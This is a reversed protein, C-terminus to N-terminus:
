ILLLYTYIIQEELISSLYNKAKEIIESKFQFEKLIEQKYDHWYAFTHFLGAIDWNKESSLHFVQKDLLIKEDLNLKCSDM